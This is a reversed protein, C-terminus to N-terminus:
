CTNNLRKRIEYFSGRDESWTSPGQTLQTLHVRNEIAALSTSQINDERETQQIKGFLIPFRFKKAASRTPM